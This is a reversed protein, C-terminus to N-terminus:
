ADLGLQWDGIRVRDISLDALNVITDVSTELARIISAVALEVYWSAIVTDDHEGNGVVRNDRWGFAGLEAQWIRAFRRADEDGSPVVWLGRVLAVKLMPIGDADLRMKGRGTTHGFFVGGGPLKRLEDMLWGQFGNQEIYALDVGYSLALDSFLALQAAFDLGRERRATLVRRKGSAPDLAAVM